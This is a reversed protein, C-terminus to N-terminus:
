CGKSESGCLSSYLTRTCRSQDLKQTQSFFGTSHGNLHFTKLLVKVYYKKNKLM